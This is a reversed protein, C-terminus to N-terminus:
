IVLALIRTFGLILIIQIVVLTVMVTTKLLIEERRTKFFWGGMVGIMLQTVPIVWLWRSIVLQEDGWPKTYLLPVQPPLSNRYAVLLGTEIVVGAVALAWDTLVMNKLIKEM